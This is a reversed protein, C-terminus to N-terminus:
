VGGRRRRLFPLMAFGWAAVSPEPAPSADSITLIAIKAEDAPSLTLGTNNYASYGTLFIQFDDFTVQGSYNFDGTFWRDDAGTYGILFNQFDDFTVKGDLNSDGAYTYKVIVDSPSVSSGDWTQYNGDGALAVGLATTGAASNNFAALSTIGHGQWSGGARGTAVLGEVAGRSMNTVVLSNDNIDLAATSAISLTAARSSIGGASKASMQVKSNADLTITSGRISRASLTQNALVHTAAATVNYVTQNADVTYTGSTVFASNIM